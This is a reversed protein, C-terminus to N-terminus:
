IIFPDVIALVSARDLPEDFAATAAAASVGGNTAINVGLQVGLDEGAYSPQVAASAINSEANEIWPKAPNVGTYIAGGPSAARARRM